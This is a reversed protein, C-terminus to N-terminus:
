NYMKAAKQRLIIDLVRLADQTNDVDAGQLALAISKLPIKAAYSIEVNFSKSRNSCRKMRKDTGGSKETESSWLM